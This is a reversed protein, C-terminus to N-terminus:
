NNWLEELDLVFSKMQVPTLKGSSAEKHNQYTGNNLNEFVHVKKDILDLVWAEPINHRAYLPIKIELDYNLSSDAVEMVLLTETPGPHHDSYNKNAVLALDPEPENYQDLRLPDQIRVLIDSSIQKILFHNLIKNITYAHNSGIPVMDIIEGEILEVRDKEKFIGAEAMKYYDEVTLRHRRLPDSLVPQVLSM